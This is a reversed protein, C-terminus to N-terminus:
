RFLKKRDFLAELQKMRSKTVGWIRTEVAATLAELMFLTVVSSDWASPAEIKINFRHSAAKGVPSGWQDTFLIIEVDQEKVMDALNILDREYRRIDFIVLLDGPKMNLVHHPWINSNAPLLTINERLVQLHTFLYDALAHTIRGGVIYVARKRDALLASVRDFDEPPLQDLSQRLNDIVADAFRNLIHTDPAQQSWRDHKAIPNSITAELEDRLANQLDPFGTFGLKQAMRVVSPTSVEALEALRTISTMGSVPYNDLLVNALKREARTLVNFKDRIIDSVTDSM